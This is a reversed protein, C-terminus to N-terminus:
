PNEIESFRVDSCIEKIKEENMDATLKDDIDRRNIFNLYDDQFYISTADFPVAADTGVGSIAQLTIMVDETGDSNYDATSFKPSSISPMWYNINHWELRTFFDAGMYLDLAVGYDVEVFNVAILLDQEGIYINFQNARDFEPTEPQNGTDVFGQGVLQYVKNSINIGDYIEGDVINYGKRETLIFDTESVPTCEYTAELSTGILDFQHIHGFEDMCVLYHNTVGEMFSQIHMGLQMDSKHLVKVIDWDVAGEPQDRQYKSSFAERRLSTADQISGPEDLIKQCKETYEAFLEAPNEMPEVIEETLEETSEQVNSRDESEEGGCSILFTFFLPYVIIIKKM